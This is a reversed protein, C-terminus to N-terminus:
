ASATQLDTLVQMALDAMDSPVFVHDHHYAAVMNCPIGHRALATSVAATLGVGELSSFVTLTIRRMRLATGFGFDDAQDPSLVLSIGEEERFWSLAVPAARNALAIDETTCFLYDSADLCPTMGALMARTDRIPETTM